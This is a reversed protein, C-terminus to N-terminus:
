RYVIIISTNDCEHRKILQSHSLRITVRVTQRGIIIPTRLTAMEFSKIWRRSVFVYESIYSNEITNFANACYRSMFFIIVDLLNLLYLIGHSEGQVMCPPTTM